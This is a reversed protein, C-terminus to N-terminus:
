IARRDPTATETSNSSSAPEAAGADVVPPEDTTPEPPTDIAPELLATDSPVFTMQPQGCADVLTLHSVCISYETPLDAPNNTIMFQLSDVRTPDFDRQLEPPLTTWSPLLYHVLPAEYHGSTEVEQPSSGGWIFANDEYNGYPALDEPVNVETIMPRMARSGQVTADFTLAYGGTAAINLPVTEAGEGHTGVRLAFGAGWQAYDDGSSAAMGDLCWGDQDSTARLEATTTGDSFVFASVRLAGSTVRVCGQQPTPLPSPPSQTPATITGDTTTPTLAPADMLAPTTGATTLVPPTVSGAVDGGTAGMGTGHPVGSSSSTVGGPTTNNTDDDLDDSVPADSVGRDLSSTVDGTDTRGGCAFITSCM